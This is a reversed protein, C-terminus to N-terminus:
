NNNILKPLKGQLSKMQESNKLKVVIIWYIIFSLPIVILLILLVFLTYGIM